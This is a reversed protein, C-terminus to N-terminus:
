LREGPHYRGTDKPMEEAAQREERDFRWGAWAALLLACGPAALLALLGTGTLEWLGFWVAYLGGTGALAVTWTLAATARARRLRRGYLTTGVPDTWWRGGDHGDDGDDDAGAGATARALLVAAQVVVVAAALPWVWIGALLVTATLEDLVARDLLLDSRRVVSLLALWGLAVLLRELMRRRRAREVASRTREYLRRDLRRAALAYRWWHLQTVPLLVPVGVTVGFAALALRERAVDGTLVHGALVTLVVLAALGGLLLAATLRRASRVVSRLRILEAQEETIWIWMGASADAGPRREVVEADAPRAGPPTQGTWGPPPEPPPEPEGLDDPPMLPVGPWTDQPGVYQPPPGGPWTYEFGPPPPPRPPGHREPYPPPWDQDSSM